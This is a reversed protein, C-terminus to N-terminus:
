RLTFKALQVKLGGNVLRIAEDAKLGMVSILRADALLVGARWGHFRKLVRGIKGYLNRLDRPNGIRRGYPANTLLLGKETPPQLRDLDSVSVQIHPLLGAREANHRAADVARPAHDSGIIKARPPTAQSRALDKLAQFKEVSFQPWKEFAFSRGLGPALNMSMACGEILITGAGCMPDFLSSTADWDCAMLLAAALTERLPAEAPDLRWGRRHLLEGSTDVSLTWRDAIGRALVKIPPQQASKGLRGAIAAELNEAIAGTHYLRSRSATASIEIAANPPLFREWPLAEARHRLKAFERAEFEGVRAVIRTATRLWLNARWVVEDDGSLEVGGDVIRNPIGLATLERAVFPEVGPAAVAFLDLSSPAATQRVKKQQPSGRSEGKQPLKATRGRFRFHALMEVTGSEIAVPSDISKLLEFGLAEGKERVERLAERRLNEDSVHGKKVQHSPLEFQPKVLIVGEAGDRLRFALGRLMSRAAVFSVDVSFFDFPGPAVSLPLKKWDVGELNTVRADNRLSEHLQGKGVDVATVQAAGHKLLAETFGGTSAGIDLARAGRVDIPFLDFAAELKLGGRGVPSL